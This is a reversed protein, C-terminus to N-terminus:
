ERGAVPKGGRLARAREHGAKIIEASNVTAKLDVSQNPKGYGRDFVQQAAALRVREDDSTLCDKLVKAADDAMCQMAERLEAPMKPRGGLIALIARSFADAATGHPLKRLSTPTPLFTAKRCYSGDMSADAWTMYM